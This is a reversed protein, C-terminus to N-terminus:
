SFEKLYANVFEDIDGDLVGEINSTEMKTRNDKILRYPQLIYSRIQSGWEIKKKEGGIKSLKEERQLVEREYLKSKLMELCTEKNQVQSRESQSTVVINTPIHTIRVASDTVNVHQGGAGSARFTDVRIEEPKIEIDIDEDIIPSVDVSAFSTHRRKSADFPSIRILRHVGKESKTLGYAFDGEFKYTISKIGAVDGSVKEIVSMKWKKRSAYREYMRALMEAWDCSETGGAGSNISLFCSKDDLEGNLMKKIELNSVKEELLFLEKSLDELLSQDNKSELIFEKLASFNKEIERYPKVWSKLINIEKLISRAKKQDEWFDEKSVLEELEKIKMEKKSVDFFGGCKKLEKIM